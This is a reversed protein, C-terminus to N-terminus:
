KKLIKKIKTSGDKLTAKVIYLGNEFTRMDITSNSVKYLQVSKLDYLEIFEIRNNKLYLFSNVPNPYVLIDNPATVTELSLVDSTSFTILKAVSPSLPHPFTESTMLYSSVSVFTIAEIQHNPFATLLTKTNTGDFVNTLGSFGDCVWVVSQLMGLADPIYGVLYLKQSM